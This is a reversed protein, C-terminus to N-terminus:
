RGVKKTVNEEYFLYNITGKRNEIQEKGVFGVNIFNLHMTDRWEGVRETAFPIGAKISDITKELSIETYDSYGKPTLESDCGTLMIIVSILIAFKYKNTTQMM